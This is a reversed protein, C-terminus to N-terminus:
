YCRPAAGVRSAAGACRGQSAKGTSRAQWAGKTTLGAKYSAIRGAADGSSGDPLDALGALQAVTLEAGEPGNCAAHLSFSWQGEASDMDLTNLRASIRYTHGPTLGLFKRLVGAKGGGSTPKVVQCFPKTSAKRIPNFRNGRAHVYNERLVQEFRGPEAGAATSWATWNPAVGDTFPIGFLEEQSNGSVHIAAANSPVQGRYGILWVDLDKVNVPHTKLDIIFSTATGPLDLGGEHDYNSWNLIIAIDDYANRPNEWRLTVQDNEEDYVCTLSLPPRPIGFGQETGALLYHFEPLNELINRNSIAAFHFDKSWSESIAEALRSAVSEGSEGPSTDISVYRANRNLTDALILEGGSAAGRFPIARTGMQSPYDNSDDHNSDHQAHVSVCVMCLAAQLVFLTIRNSVLKPNM